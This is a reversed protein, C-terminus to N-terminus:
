KRTGNHKRFAAAFKKLGDMHAHYLETVEERLSDPVNDLGGDFSVTVQQGDTCALVCSM